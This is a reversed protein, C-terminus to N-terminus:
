NIKRNKNIKELFKYVGIILFYIIFVNLLFASPIFETTSLNKPSFLLFPTTLKNPGHHIVWNFPLGYSKGQSPFILVITISVIFSLYLFRRYKIM